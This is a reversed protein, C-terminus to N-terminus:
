KGETLRHPPWFAGEHWKAWSVHIPLMPVLCIWLDVSSGCSLDHFNQRRVKWYLGIWLDQPKFELSIKM